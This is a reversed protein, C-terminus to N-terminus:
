AGIGEMYQRATNLTSIIHVGKPDFVAHQQFYDLAQSAQDVQDWYANGPIACWESLFSEVWPQENPDPLWVEGAEIQPSVASARAFKSGRPEIAVLGSVKMQLTNIVAPGNAKDEVLVGNPTPYEAHERLALLAALTAQFTMRERVQTILYKRVGVRGWKGGAVYSSTNTDKFACDWSDIVMDFVAPLESSRYFKFQDRRVIGGGRPSPRQQLQGAAGFTGLVKEQNKVESEPFRVPDMLEGDETRPDMNEPALTRPLVWIKRDHEYRMPICVHADAYGEALVYGSLDRENVRQMIIGIVSNEDERRLYVEEKFKVIKSERVEDSEAMDTKHPDDILINGAREGMISGAFSSTGRVGTKDNEFKTKANQDGRMQFRKGWRQQYWRSEIVRRCKLSDRIPLDDSSSLCLFREHPASIWTWSPFMVNVLLSKMSGPPVNFVVFKLERAKMAELHECVHGIHWNDIFKRMPELVAWANKTFTHLHRECKESVRRDLELKLESALTAIKAHDVRKAALVKTM